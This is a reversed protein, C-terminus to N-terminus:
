ISCGASHMGQNLSNVVCWYSLVMLLGLGQGSITSISSNYCYQHLVWNYIGLLVRFMARIGQCVCKITHAYFTLDHYLDHTNGKM